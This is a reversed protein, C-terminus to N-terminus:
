FLRKSCGCSSTYYLYLLLLSLLFIFMKIPKSPEKLGYNEVWEWRMGKVVCGAKEHKHETGYLLSWKHVQEYIICRSKNMSFANLIINNKNPLENWKTEPFIKWESPLVFPFFVFHPQEMCLTHRWYFM